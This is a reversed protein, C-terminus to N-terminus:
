QTKGEGNLSWGEIKGREVRDAILVAAIAEAESMANELSHYNREPQDADDFCGWDNHHKGEHVRILLRWKGRRYCTMRYSLSFTVGDSPIGITAKWENPLPGGDLELQNWVLKGPREAIAKEVTKRLTDFDHASLKPKEEQFAEHVDDYNAIAYSVCRRLGEALKPPVEIRARKETMGM